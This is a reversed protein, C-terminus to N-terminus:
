LSNHLLSKLRELKTAKAADVLEDGLIVRMQACMIEVDAVEEVVSGKELCDRFFYKNIAVILEACEEQTQMVQSSRGWRKVAAEYLEKMAKRLDFHTTEETEYLGCLPM